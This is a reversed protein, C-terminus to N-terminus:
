YSATQHLGDVFVIDFKQTDSAFFADSTMRLTGGREPDVGVKREVNVKDFTSNDKCGIELYTRCGLEVILANILENVYQM